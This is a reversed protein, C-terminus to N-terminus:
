KVVPNKATVGCRADVVGELTRREVVPVGRQGEGAESLQCQHHQEGGTNVMSLAAAVPDSVVPPASLNILVKTEANSVEDAVALPAPLCPLGNKRHQPGSQKRSCTLWETILDDGNCIEERLVKSIRRDRDGRRDGEKSGGGGEAERALETATDLLVSPAVGLQLIIVIRRPSDKTRIGAWQGASRPM